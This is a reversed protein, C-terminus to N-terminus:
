FISIFFSFRFSNSGEPQGFAAVDVKENKAKWKANIM